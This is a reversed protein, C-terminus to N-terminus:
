SDDQNESDESENLAPLYRQKTLEQNNMFQLVDLDSSLKEALTAKVKEISKSYGKEVEGCLKALIILVVKVREGTMDASIAKAFHKKFIEKDAKYVARAVTLYLQRMRFNKAIRM